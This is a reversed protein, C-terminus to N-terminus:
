SGVVDSFASGAYLSQFHLHDNALEGTRHRYSCFVFSCRVCKQDYLM